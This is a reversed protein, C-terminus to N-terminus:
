RRTSRRAQLSGLAEAGVAIEFAASMCIARLRATSHPGRLTRTLQM